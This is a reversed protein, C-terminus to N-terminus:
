IWKNIWRWGFVAPVLFCPTMIISERGSAILGLVEAVGIGLLGSAVSGVFLIWDRWQREHASPQSVAGPTRENAIAVKASCHARWGERACAAFALSFLALAWQQTTLPISEIFDLAARFLPFGTFDQVKSLRALQMASFLGFFMVLFTPWILTILGPIIYLRLVDRGPKNQLM